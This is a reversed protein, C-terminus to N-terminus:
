MGVGLSEKDSERWRLPLSPLRKYSKFAEAYMPTIAYDSRIAPLAYALRGFLAEIKPLKGPLFRCLSCQMRPLTSPVALIILIKECCFFDNIMGGGDVVADTCSM